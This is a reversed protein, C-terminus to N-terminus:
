IKTLRRVFLLGGGFAAVLGLTAPEPVLAAVEASSLATDYYQISDMLINEGRNGAERAGFVLDHAAGSVLAAASSTSGVAVGDFYAAQTGATQDYTM